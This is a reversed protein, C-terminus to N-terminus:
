RIRRALPASFVWTLVVAAALGVGFGLAALSRVTALQRDVDTLPLALRVFALLPMGSNRVPIAVYMMDTRVTASHRQSAGFGQRRAAVVEPRDAHNEVARLEEPTLDSDGVVRGNAAIFTVRAGVIGALTDAEADLEPETAATRHSLMEAALRAETRLEREIRQELDQRLSWSVLASSVLVAMAAAALATLFVKARFTVAGVRRDGTACPDRSRIRHAGGHKSAIASSSSRSSRMPSSRCSGACAGSTSTSRARAAPTTTAGCTRSCCM